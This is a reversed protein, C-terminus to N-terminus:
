SVGMLVREIEHAASKECWGGGDSGDPLELVLREARKGWGNTFLKEAIRNALERTALAPKSPSYVLVADKVLEDWDTRKWRNGGSFDDAYVYDDGKDRGFSKVLQCNDGVRYIAGIEPNIIVAEEKSVTEIPRRPITDLVAKIAAREADVLTGDNSLQYGFTESM